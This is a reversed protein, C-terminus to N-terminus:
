RKNEHRTDDFINILVDYPGVGDLIMDGNVNYPIAAFYGCKKRKKNPAFSGYTQWGPTPTAEHRYCKKASPCKHNACMSIDPMNDRRKLSLLDAKLFLM